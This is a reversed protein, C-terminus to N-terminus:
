KTAGCGSCKYGTVIEEDYADKVVKSEMHGEDPHHDTRVYVKETGTQYQHYVVSYSGHSYDNLEDGYYEEHACWGSYDPFEAGCGCKVAPVTEYVAQDVYIDEDWATKDVVYVLEYVADHHVTKKQETWTHSHTEQKSPEKTVPPTAAPKTTSASSAPKETDASNASEKQSSNVSSSNGSPKKVNESEQKEPDKKTGKDSSPKDNDKNDTAKTSDTKKEETKPTYEKGLDTIVPEGKFILEDAKEKSVVTAKEKLSIVETHTKEEPDAKAIEQNNRIIEQLHEMRDPYVTIHYTVSFTGEKDTRMDTEAVKIEKVVDFEDELTAALNVQKSKAVVFREKIDPIIKEIVEQESKTAERAEEEKLEEETMTTPTSEEATIQENTESVVSSENQVKQESDVCGTTMTASIMVAICLALAKRKM